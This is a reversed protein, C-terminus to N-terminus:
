LVPILYREQSVSDIRRQSHDFVLLKYPAVSLHVVQGVLLQHLGVVVINQSKDYVLHLYVYREEGLHEILTVKM